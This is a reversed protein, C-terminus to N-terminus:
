HNILLWTVVGSLMAFLYGSMVARGLQRNGAAVVIAAKVALNTLIAIYIAIHAVTIPLENNKFLLSLSITIADVDALGSLTAIVYVGESGFWQQAAPVMVSIVALFLGFGLATRLSYPSIRALRDVQTKTTLTSPTHLIQWIFPTILVLASILLTPLLQLFLTKELVWLIVLLRVCMIATASLVGASVPRVIDPNQKAKGALAMTTATSSALGGLLGTWLIGRHMGFARMAIHGAMSLTAILIVAWWLQYPNIAQFPGMGRDPLSPLIVLTLVLLQIGATLEEQRIKRLWGHLTQKLSLLLTVIVALGLAMLQDDLVAYAGLAYTLLLAVATTISQNGSLSGRWYVISMFAGLVLLGISLAWGRISEPLSGLIGGLLGILTFTRFGAARGGEPLTRDRWGRELGILMGIALAIILGLTEQPIELKLDM